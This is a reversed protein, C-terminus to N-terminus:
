TIPVIHLEYIDADYNYALYYVKDDFIEYANSFLTFRYTVDQYPPLPFSFSRKLIRGELDMIAVEYKEEEKAYTTLYIKNDRVKFSFFAPFYEKFKFNFQRDLSEWNPQERLREMCAERYEQPVRFAKQENEIEKLLNGKWDYVAISMGKRNDAVFIKEGAIAYDVYEPITEFDQKPTPRPQSGEQAPPPPPPVLPPIGTCIMKVPKFDPDYLRGVHRLKLEGPNIREIEMPFGVYNDGVPLLPWAEYNYSFPLKTERIFDGDHSYYILKGSSNALLYDPFATIHPPYRFEGPGDGRNGFKKQLRFDKLSFISIHMAEPIIIKGNYVVLTVPEIVDPMPIVQTEREESAFAEGTRTLPLIVTLSLISIMILFYKSNPVKTEEFFPPVM